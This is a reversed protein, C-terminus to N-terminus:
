KKKLRNTSFCSFEKDPFAVFFRQEMEGDGTQQFILKAKTGEPANEVAETEFTLTKGDESIESLLYTNVFGEIYFARIVFTQRGTDYSFIAMDEHVEGDPNKEQPEFVSKTRMRFFQGNLIFDYVQTVDSQGSMGEGRGEWSGELFRLPEWVDTKQESQAGVVTPLILILFLIFTRWM